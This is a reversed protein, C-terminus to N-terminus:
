GLDRSMVFDIGNQRAVIWGQKRYLDPVETLAHLHRAGALRAATHAAQILLSAVGQRRCAPVVLVTNIWLAGSEGAPSESDLFTLGGALTHGPTVAVLPEPVNRGNGRVAQLTPWERKLLVELEAFHRTAVADHVVRM